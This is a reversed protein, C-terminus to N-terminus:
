FVKVSKDIEDNFIRLISIQGPSKMRYGDKIFLTKDVMIKQGLMNYMEINVDKNYDLKIIIDEQSYLVSVGNDNNNEKVDTIVGYFLHIVFRNIYTFTNSETFTYSNVSNLSTMTNLTKDELYLNYHSEWTNIESFYLTGGGKTYLPIEGTSDNVSNISYDTTDLRSYITSSDGLNKYADFSSNFGENALDNARVVIEDSHLQIRLINELPNITKLLDKNSNEIVSSTTSLVPSSGNAKVYFGQFPAVLNTGGNTGVGGVYSAYLQNCTNFVYVADDVNTRSLGADDWDMIGPYPNAMLNWGDSTIDGYNTYQVPFSFTTNFDISGKTAVKWQQNISPLPSNFVTDSNWYWFGVGRTITNNGDPLIWGGTAFHDEDWLYANGTGFTPFDSNPFGTYIMQGTASDAYENLTADFPGGYLSWGNCRDVWKEYTFNGNINGGSAVTVRGYNSADGVIIFEGNVNIQNGVLRVENTVSLTNGAEIDLKSRVELDSLTESSVNFDTPLRIIVIDGAAPIGNDWTGSNTWSLDNGLFISQWINGWSVRTQTTKANMSFVCLM